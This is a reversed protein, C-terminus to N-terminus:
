PRWLEGRDRRPSRGARRHLARRSWLLSAPPRCTRGRAHGARVARALLAVRTTERPGPPAEGTAPGAGASSRTVPQEKEGEGKRGPKLVEGQQSVPLAKGWGRKPISEPANGSPARRRM